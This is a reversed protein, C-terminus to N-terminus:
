RNNSHDMLYAHSCFNLNKRCRHKNDILTNVWTKKGGLTIRKNSAPCGCLPRVLWSSSLHLCRVSPIWGCLSCRRCSVLFYVEWLINPITLKQTFNRSPGLDAIIKVPSSLSINEFTKVCMNLLVVNWYKKCLRSKEQCLFECCSNSGHVSWWIAHNM